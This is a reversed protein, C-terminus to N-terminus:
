RSFDDALFILNPLTRKEKSILFEFFLYSHVSQDTDDDDDDDNPKAKIQQCLAAAPRDTSDFDTWSGSVCIARFISGFKLSSEAGYIM